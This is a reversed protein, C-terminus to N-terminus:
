GAVPGPAVLVVLTNEEPPPASLAAGGGQERGAFRGLFHRPAQGPFLFAIPGGQNLGTGLGEGAPPLAAIREAPAEAWQALAPILAGARGDGAGAPLRRAGTCRELLHDVVAAGTTVLLPRPRDRDVFLRSWASLREALRHAEHPSSGPNALPSAGSGPRGMLGEMLRANLRDHSALGQLLEDEQRDLEQALHLFVRVARLRGAESSTADSSSRPKIRAALDFASPEGGGLREQWFAAAPGVGGAHREGWEQLRRLVAAPGGEDDAAPAWIKLFGVRELEQMAPPLPGAFPRLLALTEFHAQLAPAARPSLHTFPFYLPTM